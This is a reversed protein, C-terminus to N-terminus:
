DVKAAVWPVLSFQRCRISPITCFFAQAILFLALKPTVCSECIQTRRNPITASRALQPCTLPGVVRFGPFTRAHSKSQRDQQGRDFCSLDLVLPSPRNTVCGSVAFLRCTRQGSIGRSHGYHSCLLRARNRSNFTLLSSHSPDKFLLSAASDHIIEASVSPRDTRM